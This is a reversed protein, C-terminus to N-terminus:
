LGGNNEGLIAYTFLLIERRSHQRREPIASSVQQRLQEDPTPLTTPENRAGFNRTQDVLAPSEFASAVVEKRDRFVYGGVQRSPLDGPQPAIETSNKVGTESEGGVRSSAVDAFSFKHLVPKAQRSTPLQMKPLQSPDSRLGNSSAQNSVWGRIEKRATEGIEVFQVRAEKGSSSMWVVEGSAEIAEPIGPFQIRMRLPGSALESNALATAATLALGKEGLSTVIGGNVNGIDIYMLSTVRFRPCARRETVAPTNETGQFKDQM